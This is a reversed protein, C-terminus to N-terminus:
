SLLISTAGMSVGALIISKQPFEKNLYNIWCLIDESEKKGFTIYKGESKNCTRNDIILLSDGINYYEHCSFYLDRIATSKYGHTELFIGKSNSNEILIAHLKLGDKSKIYVDKIQENDHKNIVWKQGKEMMEKYPELTKNVNKSMPLRNPRKNKCIVAFM